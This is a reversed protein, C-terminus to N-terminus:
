YQMTHPLHQTTQLNNCWFLGQTQFIKLSQKILFNCFCSVLWKRLFKQIRNKKQLMQLVFFNLLKATRMNKQVAIIIKSALKKLWLYISIYLNVLIKAIKVFSFFCCCFFVLKRYLIYYYLIVGDFVKYYKM